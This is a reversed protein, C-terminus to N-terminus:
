VGSIYIIYLTAAIYLWIGSPGAIGAEGPPGPSGQPGPAETSVAAESDQLSKVIESSSSLDGALTYFFYACM